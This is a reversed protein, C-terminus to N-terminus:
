NDEESGNRKMANIGQVMVIQGPFLALSPIDDLKLDM